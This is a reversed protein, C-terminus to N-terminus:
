IGGLAIGDGGPRILCVVTDGKDPLWSQEGNRLVPFEESVTNDGDDLVVKVTRSRQNVESVKCVMVLQKLKDVDERISNLQQPITDRM